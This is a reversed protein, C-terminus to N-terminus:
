QTIRGRHFLSGSSHAFGVLAQGLLQFGSSGIPVPYRAGFIFTTLTLTYNGGSIGDSHALTFDGVAALRGPGRVSGPAVRPKQAKKQNTRSSLLSRPKM